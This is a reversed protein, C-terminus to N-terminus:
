AGESLKRHLDDNVSQLDILAFKLGKINNELTEFHANPDVEELDGLLEEAKEINYKYSAGAM